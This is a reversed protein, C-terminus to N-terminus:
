VFTRGKWIYNGKITKLVVIVTIIPYIFTPIIFTFPSVKSRFFTSVQSVLLFDVAIKAVLFTLYYPLYFPNLLCFFLGLLVMLNILFVIAGVLKTFPDKQKSTKSAWRVRQNVISGWSDESRTRVIADKNKIFHVKKANRKRFKELLFIDDGSAIDNNESFGSVANFVEKKYALNAGNCLIPHNLGFTGITTAQL